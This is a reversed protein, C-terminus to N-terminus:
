NTVACLRQRLRRRLREVDRGPPLVGRIAGSSRRCAGSFGALVPAMGLARMARLIKKQLAAQGENWRVPLPGCLWAHQGHSELGPFAPGSFFADRGAQSINYRDRYVTDLVAEQGTFALPLNIGSMAMWDIERQWREWDWWVM